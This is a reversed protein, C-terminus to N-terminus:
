RKKKGRKETHPVIAANDPSKMANEANHKIEATEVANGIMGNAILVKAQWDSCDPTIDGPRYFVGSITCERTVTYRM